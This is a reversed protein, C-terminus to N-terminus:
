SKLSVSSVGDTYSAYRPKFGTAFFKDASIVREEGAPLIAAPLERAKLATSRWQPNGDHVNYVGHLKHSAAHCVASAADDQHIFHVLRDETYASAAATYIPREASYLGAFRLVCGRHSLAINEAELLIEARESHKSGDEERYTGAKEPFVATSSIYIYETVNLNKLFNAQADCYTKRYLDAARVGPALCFVALDFDLKPLTPSTQMLDCAVFKIGSAPVEAPSRRIVTLEYGAGLLKEAIRKGLFGHGAILVRM